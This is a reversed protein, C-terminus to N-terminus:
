RHGLLPGLVAVVSAPGQQRGTDIRADLRRGGAQAGLAAAVRQEVWALWGDAPDPRAGAALLELVVADVDVHHVGLQDALARAVWSKGVAKPGYLVLVTAM